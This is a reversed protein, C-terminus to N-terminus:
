KTRDFMTNDDEDDDGDLPEMELDGSSTILGYKRSKNHRRRTRWYKIGFYLVIIFTVVALVIFTRYLMGKNNLIKMFTNDGVSVQDTTNAKTSNNTTTKPSNPTSPSTGSTPTDKILTEDGLGPTLVILLLLALCLFTHYLKELVNAM